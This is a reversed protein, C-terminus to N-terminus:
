VKKTIIRQATARSVGTLAAARDWAGELMKLGFQKEEVFFKNVNEVIKRAAESLKWIVPM